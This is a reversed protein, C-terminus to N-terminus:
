RGGPNEGFHSQLFFLEYISDASALINVRGHWNLKYLVALRRAVEKKQATIRSKLYTQTRDAEQIRNEIDVLEKKNDRIQEELSSVAREMRDLRQILATETQDFVYVAAKEKQLSFELERTKEKLGQISKKIAEVSTDPLVRVYEPQDKVYGADKQHTVKYWGNELAAASLRDGKELVKVM